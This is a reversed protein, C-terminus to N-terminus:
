QYIVRENAAVAKRTREARGEIPLPGLDLARPFRALHRREHENGLRMLVEAFPGPPAEEVGQARLWVRLPCRSPRLYAWFDTAVLRPLTTEDRETVTRMTETSLREPRIQASPSRRHLAGRAEGPKM